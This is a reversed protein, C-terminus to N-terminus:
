KLGRDYLWEEARFKWRDVIWRWWGWDLWRTIVPWTVVDCKNCRGFRRKFRGPYGPYGSEDLKRVRISGNDCRDAKASKTGGGAWGPCRHAKDYCTRSFRM